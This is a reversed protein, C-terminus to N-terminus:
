GPLKLALLIRGLISQQRLLLTFHPERVMERLSCEFNFFELFRLCGEELCQAFHFLTYNLTELVAITMKSAQARRLGSLRKRHCARPLPCSYSVLTLSLLLLCSYSVLTLSLLLLWSRPVHLPHGGCYRDSFLEGSAKKDELIVRSPYLITTPSAFRPDKSSPDLTALSPVSLPLSSPSSM